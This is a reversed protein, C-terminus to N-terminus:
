LTGEMMADPDEDPGVGLGAQGDPVAMDGPIVGELGAVRGSKHTEWPNAQKEVRGSLRGTAPDFTLIDERFTEPNGPHGPQSGGEIAPMYRQWVRELQNRHFGRARDGSAQRRSSALGFPKLLRAFRNADLPKGKRCTPWPSEEYTLLREILDKTTMFSYGTEDFVTRIDRLLLEGLQQPEEAASTLVRFSEECWKPWSGGAVAAIVQLPEWVDATRDGAGTLPHVRTSAIETRHDRCWRIIRRKLDLAAACEPDRFSAVRDIERKREMRISLARDVVTDPLSGIAAIALPAFVDFTRPEHEEGVCRLSRGGREYGANLLGRLEENTTAFTDAEDVLLSPHAKEVVRFLVAPSVNTTSLPRAVLNHLIRLLLTKGCRKLPSTIALRPTRHFLDFVHTHVIWLAIAPAVGKPVVVHRIVLKEIESLLVDGDVPKPWPEPEEFVLPRGQLEPGGSNCRAPSLFADVLKTAGGPIGQLQGILRSRTAARQDTDLESLQDRYTGFVGIVADIAPQKGLDETVRVLEDGVHGSGRHAVSEFLEQVTQTYRQAGLPVGKKVQALIDDESIDLLEGLRVWPEAFEAVTRGYGPKDVPEGSAVEAWAARFVRDLFLGKLEEGAPRALPDL